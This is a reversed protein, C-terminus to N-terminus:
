KTDKWGKWEDHDGKFVDRLMGFGLYAALMIGIVGYRSYGWWFPGVKNIIFQASGILLAAIILSAIVQKTVRNITHV